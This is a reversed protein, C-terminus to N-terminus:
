CFPLASERGSSGNLVTVALKYPLFYYCTLPTWPPGFIVLDGGCVEIRRHKMDVIDRPRQIRRSGALLGM